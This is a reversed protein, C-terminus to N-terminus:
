SYFIQAGFVATADGGRKVYGIGVYRFIPDLVNARHSASNYYADSVFFANFYGQSLNEGANQYSIGKQKLRNLYSNDHGFFGSEIMYSSYEVAVQSCADSWLLPALGNRVRLANVYYFSLREQGLYNAYLNPDNM